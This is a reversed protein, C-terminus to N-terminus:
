LDYGSRRFLFSSCCDLWDGDMWTRQLEIPDVQDQPEARERQTESGSSGGVPMVVETVLVVTLTWQFSAWLIRPRSSPYLTGRGRGRGRGKERGTFSGRGRGRVRGRGQSEEEGEDVEEEEEEGGAEESEEQSEEKGEEEEM